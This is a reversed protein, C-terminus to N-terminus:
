IRLYCFFAQAKGIRTTAAIRRDLFALEREVSFAVTVLSPTLFDTYSCASLHVHEQHLVARTQGCRGRVPSESRGPDYHRPTQSPGCFVASTIALMLTLLIIGLNKM